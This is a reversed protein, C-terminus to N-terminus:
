GNTLETKKNVGFLAEVVARVTDFTFLGNASLSIIIGIFGSTYWTQIEAFYGVELFFAAISFSGGLVASIFHPAKVNLWTTDHLNWNIKIAQTFTIILVLLSALTGAMEIETGEVSLYTTLSTFAFVILLRTLASTRTM